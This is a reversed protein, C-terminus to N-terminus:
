RASSAGDVMLASGSVFGADASFLFLVANSVEEVTAYRGFPMALGAAGRPRGAGDDLSNMMRGQVPGPAVAVVRIGLHAVELAATKTIGLVAHKSAVYAVSGVAGKFGGTSATNVAVSGNGMHPLVYKLGLFVGRVNVRMVRDFDAVEHDVLDAVVGEIGANNFFLDIRGEGLDAAAGAATEMQIPDTVDAVRATGLGTAGSLSDMTRRLADGDLDVVLVKAGEQALMRAVQSGIEGGGGTVLATRGRFRHM